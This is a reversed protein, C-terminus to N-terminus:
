KEINKEINQFIIDPYGRTIRKNRYKMFWQGRLREIDYRFRLWKADVTPEGNIEMAKLLEGIQDPNLQAYDNESYFCEPDKINLSSDPIYYNCLINSQAQLAPSFANIIYACLRMASTYAASGIENKENIKPLCISVTCLNPSIFEHHPSSKSDEYLPCYNDGFYANARKSYKKYRCHDVARKVPNLQFIIGEKDIVFHYNKTTKTLIKPIFSTYADENVEMDQHLIIANINTMLFPKKTKPELLLPMEKELDKQLDIIKIAEKSSDANLGDKYDPKEDLNIISNVRNKLYDAHNM